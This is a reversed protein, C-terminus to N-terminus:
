EWVDIATFRTDRTPLRWKDEKHSLANQFLEDINLNQMRFSDAAVRLRPIEEQKGALRSCDRDSGVLRSILVLGKWPRLKVLIHRIYEPSFFDKNTQMYDFSHGREM